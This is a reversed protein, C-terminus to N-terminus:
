TSGTGGFTGGLLKAPFLEIMVVFELLALLLCFLLMLLLLLLMLEDEVAELGGVSDLQLVLHTMVLRVFLFNLIIKTM